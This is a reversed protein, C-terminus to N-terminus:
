FRLLSSVAIPPLLGYPRSAEQRLRCSAQLKICVPEIIQRPPDSPIAFLGRTYDPQYLFDLPIGKLSGSLRFRQFILKRATPGPADILLMAKNILDGFLFDPHKGTPMMVLLFHLRRSSRLRRAQRPGADVQTDMCNELSGPVRSDM